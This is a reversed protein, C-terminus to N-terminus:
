PDNNGEMMECMFAANTMAHWLHPLGSEHDKKYPENWMALVHRLFANHYREFEVKRWNDPDKYKKNGYERVAMIANIAAVPVYSPHPKGKDNKAQQDGQVGELVELAMKCANLGDAWERSLEPNDMTPAHDYIAIERKLWEIAKEKSM